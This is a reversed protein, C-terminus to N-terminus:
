SSCSCRNARDRIWSSLSHDATDLLETAEETFIAAVDADFDSDDDEEEEEVPEAVTVPAAQAAPPAAEIASASVQTASLLLLPATQKSKIRQRM